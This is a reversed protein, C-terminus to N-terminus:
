SFDQIRGQDSGNLCKLCFDNTVGEILM